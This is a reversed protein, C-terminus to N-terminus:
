PEIINSKKKEIRKDIVYNNKNRTIKIKKLAGWITTKSVGFKERRRKLKVEPNEKIDKELEKWDLKRNRNKVKILELYKRGTLDM